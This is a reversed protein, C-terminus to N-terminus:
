ASVGVPACGLLRALFEYESPKWYRHCALCSCGQETVLNLAPQRVREGDVMRFSWREGCSPCPAAFTKVRAPELLTKIGITIANIREGIRTVTETEAPTWRRSALGRLKAPVDDGDPLWERVEDDIAAIMDVAPTWITPSSCPVFRNGSMSSRARVSEVLRQWWSPATRLQGGVFEKPQDILRGVASHLADVAAPLSREDVGDTVSM